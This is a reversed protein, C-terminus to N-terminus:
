TGTKTRGARLVLARPVGGADCQVDGWQLSLLEGLHCNQWCGEHSPARQPCQDQPAGRYQHPHRVKASRKHRGTTGPTAIRDHSQPRASNPGPRDPSAIATM